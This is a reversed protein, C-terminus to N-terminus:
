QQMCAGSKAFVRVLDEFLDRLEDTKEQMESITERQSHMFVKLILRLLLITQEAPPGRSQVTPLGCRLRGLHVLVYNVSLCTM